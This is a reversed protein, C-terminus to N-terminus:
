EKKLQRKVEGCTYMMAGFYPNRIEDDQQLWYSGKWDFSMPCYLEFVPGQIEIGLREVALIMGTSLSEFGERAADIEPAATVANVGKKLLDLAEMWIHHADGKLLGMDVRKLASEFEKGAKTARPFDDHALPDQIDLYIRLLEGLGKKFASPVSETVARAQLIYEVHFHEKLIRYHDSLTRFLRSAEENTDAEGGLMSDNRLLMTAEKWVLASQDKLSTPDIACLVDYFTNYAKRSAALDRQELTAKLIEYAHDLEPLQSALDPPVPIISPPSSEETAITMPGHDHAPIASEGYPSMMSPRALLQVASDIKFNGRTVVMEGESLGHKVIYYDGAKPGLLIEKGEYIGEKGPVQVYVVARRGTILPASAPIVLPEKGKVAQPQKTARVFMGPKLKGGPNAVELRVRVTRTREDVVPDVFVIKGRFIEGRYAETQFAVEMGLRVRPLDSEYAELIVWVRSLDAITYIQTGTQVYMGELVDKKIVVGSMPSYLTIQDSPAGKDIVQQIQETTFGLLRLKERAALVNQEASEKLRGFASKEIERVARAAQILEAQATVLEPSYIAAMPDGKRVSSGTYDVYLKDIRGAMWTTIYGLRTEDFDVKGFMLTQIQVARREVPFVEVEALKRAEPSLRIQRLSVAEVGDGTPDQKVPILDMFCIPCKGPEPLRIQPHMSCTWIIGGAEEQAVHEHAHEHAHEDLHPRGGLGGLFYGFAFIGALLALLMIFRFRSAKKQKEMGKSKRQEPHM